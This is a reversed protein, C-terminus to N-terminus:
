DGAVVLFEVSVIRLEAERDSVRVYAQVVKAEAARVDEDVATVDFDVAGDSFSFQPTGDKGELRAQVRVWQGRHGRLTALDQVLPAEAKSECDLKCGAAIADAAMAQMQRERECRPQCAAVFAETSIGDSPGAESKPSTVPAAKCATSILFGLVITWNRM